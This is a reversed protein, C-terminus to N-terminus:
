YELGVVFGNLVLERMALRMVAPQEPNEPYKQDFWQDFYDRQDTNLRGELDETTDFM